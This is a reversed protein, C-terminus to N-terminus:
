KLDVLAEYARECTVGRSRSQDAAEALKGARDDARKLLDAFVLATRAIAASTAATCSNSGAARKLRGALDDVTRQLSDAASRAGAADATAQDIKRQGDQVAKNISNQRAQETARAVVEAAAKAANDDSDRKNWRAQWREDTVSCGFHYAGYLAGAVLLLVALYPAIRGLLTM